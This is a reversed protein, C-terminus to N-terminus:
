FNESTATTITLSKTDITGTALSAKVRELMASIMDEQSLPSRRTVNKCLFDEIQALTFEGRFVIVLEADKEYFPMGAPEGSITKGNGTTMKEINQGYVFYYEETKEEYPRRSCTHTETVVGGPNVILMLVSCMCGSKGELEM